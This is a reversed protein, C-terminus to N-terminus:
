RRSQCSGGNALVICGYGDNGWIRQRDSALCGFFSGIVISGIVVRVACRGARVDDKLHKKAKPILKGGM